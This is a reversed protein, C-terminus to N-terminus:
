IEQPRVAFTSSHADGDAVATVAQSRLPNRDRLCALEVSLLQKVKRCSHCFYKGLTPQAMALLGCLGCVHIRFRDSVTFLRERLIGSMGHSIVCDREMEGFRLGGSRRRGHTPQRTLAVVVGRSRSYMKDDVLHRLRQYYIPGIFVLNEFSKGTYPNFMRENGYRQFGARHLLNGKKLVDFNSFSTANESFYGRIAAIKATLCELLHGVTM